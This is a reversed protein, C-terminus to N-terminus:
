NYELREGRVEGALRDDKLEQFLPRKGRLYKCLSDERQRSQSKVLERCFQSM